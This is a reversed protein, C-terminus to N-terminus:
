CGERQGVEARPCQVDMGPAGEPFQAVLQAVSVYM